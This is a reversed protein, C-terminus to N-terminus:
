VSELGVGGVLHSGSESWQELRQYSSDEEFMGIRPLEETIVSNTRQNLNRIETKYNHAADAVSDSLDYKNLDSITTGGCAVADVRNKTRGGHVRQFRNIAIITVANCIGDVELKQVPGGELGPVCNLLYQVTAVDAPINMGGQGVSATITKGIM